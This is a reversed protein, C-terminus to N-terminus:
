AGVAPMEIRFFDILDVDLVDAIRALQDVNFARKGNLRESLAGQSIGIAASLDRARVNQRGMAARVEAAVALRMTFTSTNVYTFM